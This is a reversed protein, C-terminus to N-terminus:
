KLPRAKLIDRNKIDLSLTRGTNGLANERMELRLIRKGPLSLRPLVFVERLTTAAPITAVGYCAFEPHVPYEQVNTAKVQRQDDIWWNFGDIRYSAATTNTISIEFFLWDNNQGINNLRLVIGDKQTKRLRVHRSRQTLLQRCLEELVYEPVPGASLTGAKKGSFSELCYEIPCAKGYSVVLSYIAGASVVALSSKGEFPETAKVRVLNPHEPVVEAIIRSSDGARLYSVREPCIIHTTKTEHVCISNQAALSLQFSTLFALILVKM